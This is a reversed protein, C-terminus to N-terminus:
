GKTNWSAPGLAERNFEFPSGTNVEVPALSLRIKWHEEQFKTEQKLSLAHKVSLDSFFRNRHKIQLLAVVHKKKNNNQNPKQNYKYKQLKLLLLTQSLYKGSINVM